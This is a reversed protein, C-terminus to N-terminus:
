SSICCGTVLGFFQHRFVSILLSLITNHKHLGQRTRKKAHSNHKALEVRLTLSTDEPDFNIMQSSIMLCFFRTLSTLVTVVKFHSSCLGFLSNVVLSCVFHLREWGCGEGSVFQVHLSCGKEVAVKEPSTAIACCEMGVPNLVLYFFFFLFFCSLLSCKSCLKSFSSFQLNASTRGQRQCFLTPIVNDFVVRFYIHYLTTITNSFERLFRNNRNM